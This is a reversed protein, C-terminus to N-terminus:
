SEMRQIVAQIRQYDSTLRERVTQSQALSSVTNYVEEMKQRRGQLYLAHGVKYFNADGVALAQEVKQWNGQIDAFDEIDIDALKFINADPTFQEAPGIIKEIERKLGRGSQSELNMTQLADELAKGHKDKTLLKFGRYGMDRWYYDNQLCVTLIAEVLKDHSYTKDKFLRIVIARSRVTTDTEEAILRDIDPLLSDHYSSQFLRLGASRISTYSHELAFSVTPYILDRDAKDGDYRQLLEIVALQVETSSDGHLIDTVSQLIPRLSKGKKWIFAMYMNKITNLRVTADAHQLAELLTALGKDPEDKLSKMAVSPNDIVQTFFDSM